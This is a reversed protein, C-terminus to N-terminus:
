PSPAPTTTAPPKPDAAPKNSTETAPGPAKPDNPGVAYDKSGLMWPLVLELVTTTGSQNTQAFTATQIKLVLNLLAMPSYVWVEDGTRWLDAGDRLWGQVTVHATILTGERAIAEWNARMKLEAMTKVPQEAVTEIIKLANKLTGDAKAKMEAAAKMMEEDSGWKQATISYNTAMQENSFVCQMKLINEGETLQQVIPKSHEGILLWNGLHDSGMHAGRTRAVRDLFDFTLEGPQAQLREFPTPDVYGIPLVAIGYVGAAKEAVALLPMKDFNNDKTQVSSTAAAWQKGAGALQVQHNTADYSTQRHLIIGDMAQQGGLFILCRDGPKFQLLNWDTPLDARESSTFRFTPWGGKWRHQVWVTDWDEFKVGNVVLQAVEAPNAM